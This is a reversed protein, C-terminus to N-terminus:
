SVRPSWGALVTKSAVLSISKPYGDKFFFIYEIVTVYLLWAAWVLGMLYVVFLESDALGVLIVPFKTAVPSTQFIKVQLRLVGIVQWDIAIKIILGVFEDPDLGPICIFSIVRSYLINDCAVTALVM